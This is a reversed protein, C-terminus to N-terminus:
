SLVLVDEKDINEKIKALIKEIDNTDAKYPIIRTRKLEELQKIEMLKDHDLLILRLVWEDKIDFLEIPIAKYKLCFQPGIKKILSYNIKQNELDITDIWEQGLLYLKLEDESIYGLM